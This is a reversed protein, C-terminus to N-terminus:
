FIELGCEVEWCYFAFIKSMIQVIQGQEAKKEEGPRWRTYQWRQLYRHTGTLKSVSGSIVKGHIYLDQQKLEHHSLGKM